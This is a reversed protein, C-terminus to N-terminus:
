AQRRHKAHRRQVERARDVPDIRRRRRVRRPVGPRRPRVDHLGVIPVPIILQVRALQIFQELRQPFAHLRRELRRLGIDRDALLTSIPSLDLDKRTWLDIHGEEPRHTAKLVGPVELLIGAARADDATHLIVWDDPSHEAILRDLPGQAVLKGQDIIGIQSCLSELESLIHSSLLITKGM